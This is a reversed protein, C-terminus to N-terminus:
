QQPQPPPSPPKWITVMAAKPIWKVHGDCFLVNYGGLHPPPFRESIINADMMLWTTSPNAVTDLLKGGVEDNYAYTIGLKRWPEPAAPCAFLQRLGNNRGAVINVINFADNPEKKWPFFWATPLRGDNDDSHMQLLAYIQQLQTACQTCLSKNKAQVFASGTQGALTALIGTVVTIEALTVGARGGRRGMRLM